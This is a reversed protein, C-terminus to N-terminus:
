AENKLGLDDEYLKELRDKAIQKYTLNSSEKLIYELIDPHTIKKIAEKAVYHEDMLVIEALLEQDDIIQVAIFRVFRDADKQAIDEVLSKNQLKMVAEARVDRDEDKVAIEELKNQDALSRVAIKREYADNSYIGKKLLKNLLTIIM